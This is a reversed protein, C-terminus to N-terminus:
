GKFGSDRRKARGEADFFDEKQVLFPLIGPGLRM